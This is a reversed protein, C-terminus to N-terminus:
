AHSNSRGQNVLFFKTVAATVAAPRERFLVAPPRAQVLVAFQKRDQGISLSATVVGGAGPQVIVPLELLNAGSQLDTQWRLERRGPYGALEVGQPLQLHVTVGSLERPSRFMLRVPQVEDPAVAVRQPGPVAASLSQPAQGLWVAIGVGLALSAALAYGAAAPRFVPRHAERVTAFVRDAFGASPAPVPLGRIKERLQLETELRARCAPCRDAHDRHAGARLRDLGGDLADHLQQRFTRCDMNM